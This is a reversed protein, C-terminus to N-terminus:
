EDENEEEVEWKFMEKLDLSQIKESVQDYVMEYFENKNKEFEWYVSADFRDDVLDNVDIQYLIEDFIDTGENDYITDLMDIINGDDNVLKLAEEADPVVEIKNEFEHIQFYKQLNGMVHEEFDSYATQEALNIDAYNVADLFIEYVDDQNVEHYKEVLNLFEIMQDDENKIAKTKLEDAIDGILLVTYGGYKLNHVEGSYWAIKVTQIDNYTLDYHKDMLISLVHKQNNNKNTKEFQEVAYDLFEWKSAFEKSFSNDGIVKELAIQADYLSPKKKIIENIIEKNTDLLDIIGKNRLMLREIEKFKDEVAMLSGKLFKDAREQDGWERIIGQYHDSNMIQIREKEIYEDKNRLQAEQNVIHNEIKSRNRNWHIINKVNLDIDGAYGHSAEANVISDQLFYFKLIYPIYEKSIESNGYGKAEIVFGLAHVTITAHISYKGNPYKRRLSYIVDSYETRPSNGCHGMLLGESESYSEPLKEIIFGDKFEIVTEDWDMNEKLIKRDKSYRTITANLEAVLRILKNVQSLIEDLSDLGRYSYAGKSYAEKAYNMVKTLVGIEDSVVKLDGRLTKIGTRVYHSDNIANQLSKTLVEELRAGKAYFYEAEIIALNAIHFEPCHKKSLTYRAIEPIVNIMSHYHTLKDIYENIRSRFTYSRVESFETMKIIDSTLFNDPFFKLSSIIKNRLDFFSDYQNNSIFKWNTKIDTDSVTRVINEAMLSVQDPDNHKFIGYDTISDSPRSAHNYILQRIVTKCIFEELLQDYEDYKAILYLDNEWNVKGNSMFTTYERSLDEGVAELSENGVSLVYRFNMSNTKGTNKMHTTHVFVGMLMKFFKFHSREEKMSAYLSKDGELIEQNHLYISLMTVIYDIYDKRLYAFRSKKFLYTTVILEKIHNNFSKNERIEKIKRTRKTPNLNLM